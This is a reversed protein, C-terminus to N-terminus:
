EDRLNMEKMIEPTLDLAEPMRLVTRGILQTLGGEPDEAEFAKTTPVFRMVVDIGRREAVLDIAALTEKWSVDIQERLLKEGQETMEAQWQDLSERLVKWAESAREFDPHDPGIRGYQKIFEDRQSEFEKMKERGREELSKREDGLRPAELLLSMIRDVDVFAMTTARDTPRDGWALRGAENRVRLDGKAGRLVVADAPGLDDALIPEAEATSATRPWGFASAVLLALLSYVVFRERHRM